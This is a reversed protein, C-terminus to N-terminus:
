GRDVWYRGVRERGVLEVGVWERGVWEGGVLERSVWVRGVRKVRLRRNLRAYLGLTQNKVWTLDLFHNLEVLRHFDSVTDHQDSGRHTHAREKTM